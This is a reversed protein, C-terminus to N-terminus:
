KADVPGGEAQTTPHLEASLEVLKAELQEEVKRRQESRPVSELRDKLERGLAAMANQDARNSRNLAHMLPSDEERVDAGLVWRLQGWLAFRYRQAKTQPRRALEEGRSKIERLISDATASQADDFGYLAKAEKVYREWESVREKLPDYKGAAQRAHKLQPSAGDADLTPKSSDNDDFPDEGSVFEGNSWRKMAGEFGDLAANFAVLEGAFKLQQKMSMEPRIDQAVDRVLKRLQPMFMLMDSGFSRALDANFAPSHRGQRMGEGLADFLTAIAREGAAQGEATDIAQVTFIFFIPIHNVVLIQKLAQFARDM